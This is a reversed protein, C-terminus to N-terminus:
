CSGDCLSSGCGLLDDPPKPLDKSRPGLIVETGDRTLRVERFYLSAFDVREILFDYNSSKMFLSHEKGDFFMITPKPCGVYFSTKSWRLLVDADKTLPEAVWVAWTSQAAPEEEMSKNEDSTGMRESWNKLGWRIDNIL